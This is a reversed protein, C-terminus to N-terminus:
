NIDVRSMRGIGVSYLFFGIVILPTSMLLMFLPLSAYLTMVQIGLFFSLMIIIMILFISTFTNIIFASSKQNEYAPNNATIGISLLVAGCTSWYTYAIMILAEFIDFGFVITVTISPVIAIPFALLLSETIRAKAFKSVGHPASKMIWLQDKSELFGIGGFTMGSIM